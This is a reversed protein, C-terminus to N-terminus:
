GTVTRRREGERRLGQIRLNMPPVEETDIHVDLVTPGQRSCLTKIDLAQMDEPSHITIGEAGMAQALAAFDTQPLQHAISEAGALRQGHKVMGLAHDNLIVFIVGLQEAVAVSLEQGSMLFSGDGTICVVPGDPYALAAGVAAGIAWGMSSFEISTRFLGGNIGRRNHARREKPQLYHVAWAVSNGTDAFFRTNAPFRQNLEHMLRQPKIPTANSHCKAEEDLTFRPTDELSAHALPKPVHRDGASTTELQAMLEEFTALIHGRVHLRAMPSRTLNENVSDIHVLRENLLAAESWGCSAWESLNTEVAIILDVESSALVARASSHGAFGIVGRYRPHDPNVLGKGHPTTIIFTNLREAFAMIAGIAESCGGGLVLVVQRAKSIEELLATTKELDVIHPTQLLKPLDFRPNGDPLKQRMVDLPISLHAPGRPSHFATMVATILKHQLQDIHSILTSYRTCHQLMSVTDIGTCSSEQFAGRGFTPLPTQASIALLPVNNEYADALGTIMNTTGPGTTACCVGLRGTQRAYGDAMFVAGNEHRAVVPRIGNRRASRALADYLPEIAGGPIGFIYDCGIQELYHLIIDSADFAPQLPLHSSM